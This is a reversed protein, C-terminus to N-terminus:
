GYTAEVAVPTDVEITELMALLALSGNPVNRNWLETGDDGLLAVQSRRRHLDIGVVPM